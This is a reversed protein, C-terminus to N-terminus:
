VVKLARGADWRECAVRARPERDRREFPAPLCGCCGRCPQPIGLTPTVCTTLPWTVGRPEVAGIEEQRRERQTGPPDSLWKDHQLLGPLEFGQHLHGSLLPFSLIFVTVASVMVSGDWSVGPLRLGRPGARRVPHPCFAAPEAFGRLSGLTAASLGLPRPYAPFPAPACVSLM